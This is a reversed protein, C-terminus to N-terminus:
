ARDEMHEFLADRDTLDVGAQAGGPVVTWRFRYGSTEVARERELLDHLAREIMATLTRGTAAARAKAEKMLESDLQLTTRMCILM